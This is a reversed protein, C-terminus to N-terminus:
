FTWVFEVTRFGVRQLMQALCTKNPFWWSRHDGSRSSGGIYLMLPNSEDLEPIEESIILKGRCLPAITSIAKLPSFLHVLIDGLHVLDFQTGNFKDPGLDYISSYCRSINSRLREHCFRFPGDLHLFTLEEVSAAQHYSMLERLTLERDEGSPMDWDAISPLEVSTVTAGRKEFEFAFFGTASGVELVRMNSMDDPFHFHQIDKRYDYAGPTVIGNGVEVAHYWYFRNLNPVNLDTVGDQFLRVSRQYEEVTLRRKEETAIDPKYKTVRGLVRPWLSAFGEQAVVKAVGRYFPTPEAM